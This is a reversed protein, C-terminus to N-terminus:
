QLLAPSAAGVKEESSKGARKRGLVGGNLSISLGVIGAFWALDRHFSGYFTYFYLLRVLYTAFLYKNINRLTPESYLYNNYLVKLSKWALWSFGVLGFIGLPIITTFVGNHYDGTVVYDEFFKAHGRKILERVMYLETLSFGFGKGLFLYRPVETQIMTWMGLRWEISMEADHRVQPDLRVPLFTLCRQVQQPLREANLLAIALAVGLLGCIVLFDGRRYIREIVVYVCLLLLLLAITSRFGGFLSTLVFLTFLCGRWPKRWDLVGQLGYRMLLFSYASTAAWAVGTLRMITDQTMAQQLAFESSFFNFLFYFSPGAAFAIDSFIMTVGSLVFGYAVWRADRPDIPRAILAFYIAFGGVVSVLTRLGGRDSGLSQGGIGGRALVTIAVIGFLFIFLGTVPPAKIWKAERNMTRSGLSTALSLFACVVSLYPQGPLFFVIISSNLTLILFVHHWRLLVPLLLVGPIAATLALTPLALPSAVLYGMVVAVLAVALMVLPIAASGNM